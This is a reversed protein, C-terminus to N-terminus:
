MTAEFGSKSDISQDVRYRDYGKGGSAHDHLGDRVWIRDNGAQGLVADRGHDGQLRDNGGGGRIVDNGGGGGITDNGGLGCIVDPGPTGGLLDAGSTGTITCPKKVNVSHGQAMFPAVAALIALAFFTLGGVLVRLRM